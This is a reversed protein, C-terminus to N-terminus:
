KQKEKTLKAPRPFPVGTIWRCIVVSAFLTAFSVFLGTEWIKFQHYVSETFVKGAKDVFTGNVERIPALPWRIIGYIMMAACVAFPILFGAAQISEKQRHPLSRIRHIM